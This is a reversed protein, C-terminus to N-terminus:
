ADATLNVADLSGDGNAGPALLFSELAADPEVHNASFFAVVERGTLEEVAAVLDRRMADQFHKRMRLVVETKGDAVLSREGKTLSDRVVVSVLDDNLYTRARTPGRGTYDTIVRVVRNSIASALQGGNPHATQDSSM